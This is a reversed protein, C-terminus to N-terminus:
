SLDSGCWVCYTEALGYRKIWFNIYSTSLGVRESIQAQTKGARRLAQITRTRNAVQEQTMKVRRKQHPKFGMRNAKGIVAGKTTGLTKAIDATLVGENWHRELIETNAARWFMNYLIVVLLSICITRLSVKKIQSSVLQAHLNANGMGNFEDPVRVTSSSQAAPNSLPWIASRSPTPRPQTFRLIWRRPKDLFGGAADRHVSFFIARRLSSQALPNLALWIAYSKPPPVVLFATMPFTLRSPSEPRLVTALVFHTLPAVELFPRLVFSM